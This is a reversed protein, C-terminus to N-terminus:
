DFIIEGFARPTTTATFRADSMYAPYSANNAWSITQFFLIYDVFDRVDYAVEYLGMLCAEYAFLDIKRRGGDTIRKMAAYLEPNTLHDSGSSDDWAIGQTGDGHDEIALFYRDAPYNQMAWTVFDVLTQPDGMNLEGMDWRNVNQTYNGNPQIHYRVTGAIRPCYQPHGDMLVLVNLFGGAGIKSALETGLRPVIQEQFQCLNNDGDIYLIATWTNGPPPPSVTATPTRTVAGTTTPTPTVAPDRTPTATATATPRPTLTATPTPSPERTPTPQGGGIVDVLLNYAYDSGGSEDFSAILVYYTGTRPAMCRLYPDLSWDDDDGECVVSLASPGASVLWAYADLPSGITAADVDVVITNGAAASFKFIDLDYDIDITLGNIATGPTITSADAICDNPEYADGAGDRYAIQLSVDDIYVTTVDSDDNVLDFSLLVSQEKIKCWDDGQILYEAEWWEDPDYEYPLDAGDICGLDVLMTLGDATYIGGCAYDVDYYAEDGFGTFWFRLYAGIGDGTPLTVSQFVDEYSDEVGGLSAVWTGEQATDLEIIWAGTSSDWPAPDDDEFGGNQILNPGLSLNLQAGALARGRLASLSASERAANALGLGSSPPVTKLSPTGTPAQSTAVGSAILLAVCLCVVLVTVVRVRTGSLM